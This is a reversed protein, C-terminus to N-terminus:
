IGRFIILLIFFILLASIIYFDNFYLFDALDDKLSQKEASKIRHPLNKKLSKRFEDIQHRKFRLYIGGVKYAPISGKEALDMVEKESIGLVLSVDRITLLKEEDM